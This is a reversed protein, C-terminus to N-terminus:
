KTCCNKIYNILSISSLAIFFQVVFNKEVWKFIVIDWVKDEKNPTTHVPIPQWTLDPNWKQDGKPPYMGALNAYASMLCRDVDTSQIYVDDQSYEDSLLDAYHKRLWQGLAYHQKKGKQLCMIHFILSLYKFNNLSGCKM